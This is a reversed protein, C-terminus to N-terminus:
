EGPKAVEAFVRRFRNDEAYEVRYRVDLNPLEHLEQVPPLEESQVLFKLMRQQEDPHQFSSIDM